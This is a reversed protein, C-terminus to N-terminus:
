PPVIIPDGHIVIKYCQYELESMMECKQKYTLDRWVSVLMDWLLLCMSRFKSPKHQDQYALGEEPCQLYVEQINAHHKFVLTYRSKTKREKEWMKYMGKVLMWCMRKKYFQTSLFAQAVVEKRLRNYEYEMYRAHVIFGKSPEQEDTM